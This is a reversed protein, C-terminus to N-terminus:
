WFFLGFLYRKSLFYFSKCVMWSTSSNSLEFISLSSCFLDSWWSSMLAVRPLMYGPCLSVQERKEIWLGMALNEIFWSARLYVIFSYLSVPFNALWPAIYGSPWLLLWSYCIMPWGTLLMNAQSLKIFAVRAWDICVWLRISSRKLWAEFMSACDLSSSAQMSWIYFSRKLVTLRFPYIAQNTLACIWVRM